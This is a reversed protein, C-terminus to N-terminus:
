EDMNEIEFIFGKIKFKAALDLLDMAADRRKREMENNGFNNRIEYYGFDSITQFEIKRNIGM